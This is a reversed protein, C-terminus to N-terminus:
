QPAEKVLRRYDNYARVADQERGLAAYLRAINYYADALEPDVLLVRAGSHEVIYRLEDPRLRFNVPVLM